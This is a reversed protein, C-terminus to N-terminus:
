SLIYHMIISNVDSNQLINKRYQRIYVIVCKTDLETGDDSTANINSKPPDYQIQECYEMIDWVHILEQSHQKNEINLHLKGFEDERCTISAQKGFYSNRLEDAFADTYNSFSKRYTKYKWDNIVM